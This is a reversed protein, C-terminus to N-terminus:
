FTVAYANEISIRTQQTHKIILRFYDDFIQWATKEKVFFVQKLFRCQQRVSYKIKSIGDLIESRLVIYTCYTSILENM